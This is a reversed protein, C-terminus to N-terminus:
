WEQQAKLDTILGIVIKALKSSDHRVYNETSIVSDAIVNYGMAKIRDVDTVVPYANELKYKELLFQPVKGTNVICYDVIKSSAHKELAAIHDSATYNDTEGSQTMVNCVYIKIGESVSIFDSIEKVLLNPVISTYLSGPGLIIADAQRIADIAEQTPRSDAPLLSIKKIPSTSKSIKAEGITQTGDMHEAVLRVKNLTSPIVSGRIALVRSSQKIAKEFDGTVKSLALIFLNGFNHGKLESTEDFRYQFLERMLPEADALAVLCNRIDGPPLVDFDNRLKGSSGGEDSVTVIATINNTYEKLGHLLVSLGTGGGLVVVKPGKELHRKQYVLDVLGDGRGPLFITVFSRAMNLTSLIVIVLGATMYFTGLIRLKINAATFFQGSGVAIATVGVISLLIWRKVKMGPYLWKLPRLLNKISARLPSM